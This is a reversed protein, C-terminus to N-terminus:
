IGGARRWRLLWPLALPVQWVLDPAWALSRPGDVAPLGASLAAIARTDRAAQGTRCQQGCGLGMPVSVGPHMATELAPTAPSQTTGALYHRAYELHTVDNQRHGCPSLATSNKESFL